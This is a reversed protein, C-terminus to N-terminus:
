YISNPWLLSGRIAEEVAERRTAIHGEHAPTTWWGDYAYGDENSVQIYWPDNRDERRIDIM